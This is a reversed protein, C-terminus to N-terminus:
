GTVCYIILGILLVFVGFIAPAWVAMSPTQAELAYSRGPKFPDYFVTVKQGQVFDRTESIWKPRCTYTVGEVLYSFTPRYGEKQPERKHKVVTYGEDAVVGGAVSTCLRKVRKERWWSVVSAGVAIIGVLVPLVADGLVEMIAGM